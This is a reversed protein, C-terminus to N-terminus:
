LLEGMRRIEGVFYWSGALTMGTAAVLALPRAAYFDCWMPLLTVVGLAALNAAQLVRLTLQSLTLVTQARDQLQRQQRVREELNALAQRVTEEDSWGVQGLVIVLRDLLPWGVERLASLAKGADADVRYRRVSEEVASRLEGEGRGARPSAELDEAATELSVFVSQGVGFVSRLAGIFTELELLNERAARQRSAALMWGVAGGLLLFWPSLLPHRWLLAVALGAGLGWWLTRPLVIAHNATTIKAEQGQSLIRSLVSRARGRFRRNLIAALEALGELGLRALLFASTALLLPPAWVLLLPPVWDRVDSV